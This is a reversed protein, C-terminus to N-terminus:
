IRKETSWSLIEQVGACKGHSTESIAYCIVIYEESTLSRDLLKFEDYPLIIGLLFYPLNCTDAYRCYAPASRYQFPLGDENESVKLQGGMLKLMLKVRLQSKWNKADSVCSPSKM